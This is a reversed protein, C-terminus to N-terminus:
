LVMKRILVELKDWVWCLALISYAVTMHVTFTAVIVWAAIILDHPIM